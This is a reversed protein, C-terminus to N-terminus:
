QPCERSSAGSGALRGIEDTERDLALLTAAADDPLGGLHERMARAATRRALGLRGGLRGQGEAIASLVELRDIRCELRRRLVPDEGPRLPPLPMAEALGGEGNPPWATCGAVLLLLALTAARM